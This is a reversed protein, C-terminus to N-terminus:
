QQVNQYFPSKENLTDLRICDVKFLTDAKAIIEQITYWDEQTAKPCVIALDIDSRESEDGRARSGYLWIEEVFSLYAISKIFQYQTIDM